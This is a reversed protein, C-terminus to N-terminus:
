VLKELLIDFMETPRKRYSYRFCAEDAYKQMYKKSVKIHTGKIIRELQSWFGEISNTHFGDKLWKNESHKVQIHVYGLSELDNYMRHGDTVIISGKMVNKLILPIIQRDTAENFMETRVTRDNEIIGLIKKKNYDPGEKIRRWNAKSGHKNGLAGGTYLEDIQIVGDFLNNRNMAMLQRIKHAMRFATKYTVGLQRELEKAAVGNRTATYLYISYFWYTLPTRSKEYITGVLPYLQHSCSACQFSKRREKNKKSISTVRKYSFVASCAPCENLHGFRLRFVEQLCSDDDPFRERFQAITITDKM